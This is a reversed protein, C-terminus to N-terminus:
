EIVIAGVRAETEGADTEILAGRSGISVRITLRTPRLDRPVTLHVPDKVIKGERWRSVPLRGLVPTHFGGFLRPVRQRVDPAFGIGVRADDPCDGLPRFYLDLPLMEGRRFRSRPLGIGALEACRGFRVEPRAWLRRPVERADLLHRAVIAADGTAPVQSDVFDGLASSLRRRDDGADAGRDREERPDTQLDFLLEARGRVDRVLHWRGDTVAKLHTPFEGDPLLEQFLLARVSDRSGALIPILSRGASPQAPSGALNRVTEAVDLLGVLARTRRPRIGPGRVFLPVRVVEAYLNRGHTLAGHEGLSEGHDATAIVVTTAAHPSEGLAGLLRGVQRDTRTVAADYRGARGGPGPGYPDHPDFLHVWALFRRGAPVRGLFDVAADVARASSGKFSRDQHVVDFGQLFGESASFYSTSLFAGTDWGAAAADEAITRNEPLLSQFLHEEGWFMQSAYRGTMMAPISRLSRSSQAFALDFVVADRSLWDLAPTLSRGRRGYAALRDRRLADITLLLVSSGQLGRPPRIFGPSGLTSSTRRADRGSCNEDVGNGPADVAEPHVDPDNPGCDAGGFLFGHGDDDLDTWSSAVALLRASLASHESVALTAAPRSAPLVAAYLALAVATIAAAIAIRRLTRSALAASAQVARGAFVTAIAWGAAVVAASVPLLALRDRERLALVALAACAAGLTPWITAAPRQLSPFRRAASRLLGYLGGGAAVSALGTAGLVALAAWGALRADRYSTAFYVVVEADAFALLGLAVAVAPLAAAVVPDPTLPRRLAGLLRRAAAPVPAIASLGALVAGAAGGVIAGALAHIGTCALLVQVVDAASTSSAGALSIAADAIGSAIGTIAGAQAARGIM